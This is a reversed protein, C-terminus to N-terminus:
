GSISGRKRIKGKLTEYLKAKLNINEELYEPNNALERIEDRNSTYLDNRNQLSAQYSANKDTKKVFMYIIVYVNNSVRDFIIRTQEGRVESLGKLMVNNTFTKFNKFSGDCISELLEYFSDYYETPIDKLDSFACVNGYNTKLFVIENNSKVTEVTKVEEKMIQKIYNIKIMILEIENEFFNRTELDSDKGDQHLLKKIEMVEEYLKLIITYIVDFYNESEKDPLIKEIDCLSKCDKISRIYSKVDITLPVIAKHCNSKVNSIKPLEKKSNSSQRTSIIKELRRNDDRLMSYIKSNYEYIQILIKNKEEFTMDVSNLYNEVGDLDNIFKSNKRFKEIIYELM